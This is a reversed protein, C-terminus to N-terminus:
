AVQVVQRRRRLWALGSLGAGLGMLTLSSPEPVIAGNDRQKDTAGYASDGNPGSVFKVVSLAQTHGPPITSLKNRIAEETTTGTMNLVLNKTAGSQIQDRNSGFDIMWNYNGFGAANQNQDAGSGSIDWSSPVHNAFSLGTLTTDTNFFLQDIKYKYPTATLNVLTILLQSGSVQFTVEADLVSAPTQDSSFDSYRFTVDAQAPPAALASAILLALGFLAPRV